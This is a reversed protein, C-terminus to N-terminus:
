SRACTSKKKKLPNHYIMNRTRKTSKITNEKDKEM